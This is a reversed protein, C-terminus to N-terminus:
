GGVAYEDYFLIVFFNTEGFVTRDIHDIHFLIRWQGSHESLLM